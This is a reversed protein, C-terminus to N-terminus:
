FIIAAEPSVNRCLRNELAVVDLAIGRSYTSPAATLAQGFIVRVM